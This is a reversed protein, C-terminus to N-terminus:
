IKSTIRSTVAVLICSMMWIFRPHRTKFIVSFNLWEAKSFIQLQSSERLCYKVSLFGLHYSSPPYPKHHNMWLCLYISIGHQSRFRYSIPVGYYISQPQWDYFTPVRVTSVHHQTTQLWGGNLYHWREQSTQISSFGLSREQYRKGKIRLTSQNQM